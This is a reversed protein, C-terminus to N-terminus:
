KPLTTPAMIVISPEWFSIWRPWTVVGMEDGCLHVRLKVFGADDMTLKMIHALMWRGPFVPGQWAVLQIQQQKATHRGVDVRILGIM